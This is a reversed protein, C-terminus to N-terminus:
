WKTLGGVKFLLAVLEPPAAGHGPALDFVYDKQDIRIQLRCEDYDDSNYTGPKTQSSVTETLSWISRIQDETLQQANHRSTSMQEPQGSWVRVLGDRFVAINYAGSADELPHVGPRFLLFDHSATACGPFVLLPILLSALLSARIM